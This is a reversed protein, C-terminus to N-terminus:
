WPSGTVAGYLELLNPVQAEWSYRETAALRCRRRLDARAAPDLDLISRLAAGIAAPDTPDCVAGLPGAPDDIVIRRREPFDSSVVPTGAALCEFLKNPTSLRENVTRPQNPMAGVDASAVWELLESPAVPPLLHVRGGLGPDAALTRLEVELPGSGMLALHAAELGPSRMADLLERLGRDRMFGGHYLVVPTGPHLGLADRIRDPPPEPPTWAAQANLVVAPRPVGFRRSLADALAGNVTLVAAARGAWRREIWAFVARLPRPLRAINNGAAYLDRADYVFPAKSRRALARAVPLGLFGMAHYLDAPRDVVAAARAQARARGAVGAIRRLERIRHRVRSAPGSPPADPTGAEVRRLVAGPALSEIEPLGDEVRAIVLVDHGRAALTMAMRRTRSDFAGSSPLTFTVRQPVPVAGSLPTTGPLPALDAYLEVLGRSEAAWNWRSAAADRCRARLAAAVEPELDLISRIARAVAAVDLPDVLAGLPPDGAPAVIERIGPFDSAVVPVGAALCEFLKNPTSLRHNATTPAIPMVGVDAGAVWRTVEAPDVPLLVHIRGATAPEAAASALALEGAGEGLFVAHVHELGPERIAAALVEVGRGAAFSGHYLAIPADGPVGAAARLPSAAAAPRDAGVLPANHVVVIRRPVAIRTLAAALGANVTVLADAHRIAAREFRRLVARAWAPRTATDGAELYLEHADYVLRGGLRRQAALAAPLGTLDHAHWVDAIPAAAAAARGWAVTGLRWRVLLDCGSVIPGLLPLRAVRRATEVLRGPMQARGSALRRITAPGGRAPGGRAPTGRGPVGRGGGSALLVGRLQGPVPVRRIEFGERMERDGVTAAPDTPRGIVTVEHGADVLTAAERLVRADRHVDNLVFMVIRAM